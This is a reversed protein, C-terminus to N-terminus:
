KLKFWALTDKTGVLTMENELNGYLEKRNTYDHVFMLGEPKLLQMSRLGACVRARGDVLIKDFKGSDSHFRGFM